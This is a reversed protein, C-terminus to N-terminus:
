EVGGLRVKIPRQCRSSTGGAKIHVVGAFPGFGISQIVLLYTGDRKEQLDFHGSDSTKTSEITEASEDDSKLWVSADAIAAGLDDVVDGCIKGTTAGSFPRRRLYGLGCDTWALDLDVGAQKANGDIEIPISGENTKGSADSVQVFYIGDAVPDAFAFRGKNDTVTTRISRGSVGELLALSLLVQTQAPYFDSVRLTGSASRVRVPAENPWTLRLVSNPAGNSTVDVNVGDANGADHDASLFYSGTEVNAFRAYGSADTSAYRTRSHGSDSSDDPSAQLQLRLAAIPRGHDTVRVRFSKGVTKSPFVIVCGGAIIPCLLGILM